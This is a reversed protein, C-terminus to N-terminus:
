KFGLTKRVKELLSHINQKFLKENSLDVPVLKALIKRVPSPANEPPWPCFRLLVPIIPKHLSEALSLDKLSGDGQIYKPTICSLVLGSSRMLRQMQVHLNEASSDLVDRRMSLSSHHGRNLSAGPSVDAWCSISNAELIRRIDEVRSQMDWQYSIFVKPATEGDLSIDAAGVHLLIVL